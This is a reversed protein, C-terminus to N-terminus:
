AAETLWRSGAATYLGVVPDVLEGTPDFVYDRAVGEFRDLDALGAALSARDHAVSLLGAVMHAADWAEAAYIGPALGNESQYANIFRRVDEDRHTSVDVCPCTLTGVVVGEHNPATPPIVTKLSDAGLDVPRGRVLQADHLASALALAGEPAGTWVVLSCGQDVDAVATEVDEGSPTTRVVTTPLARDLAAQLDISYSWDEGFICVPETGAPDGADIVAGAIMDALVTVQLSSDPVFRHWLGSGAPQPPSQPSLSLTPVGADGLIAAVEPPESWFPAAVAAVYTPDAAIEQAFAVAQEEDAETDMQVVEVEIGLDGADIAEHLALDFALFSPSVLDVHSPVTLDQLFAVKV